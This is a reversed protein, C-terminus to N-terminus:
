FGFFIMKSETVPVVGLYDVVIEEVVFDKVTYKM